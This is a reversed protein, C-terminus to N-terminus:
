VSLVKFDIVSLPIEWWIQWSMNVHHNASTDSKIAKVVLEELEWSACRGASFLKHYEKLFGALSQIMRPTLRYSGAM